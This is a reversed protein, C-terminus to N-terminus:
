RLGQAMSPITHHCSSRHYSGQPMYSWNSSQFSHVNLLYSWGHPRDAHRHSWDGIFVRSPYAQTGGQLIINQTHQWVADSLSNLATQFFKRTFFLLFSTAQDRKTEARHRKGRLIKIRIRESGYVIVTFYRVAKGFEILWELSSNISLTTKHVDSLMFDISYVIAHSLSILFVHPSLSKFIYIWNQIHQTLTSTSNFVTDM